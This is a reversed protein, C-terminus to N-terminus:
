SFFNFFKEFLGTKNPKKRISLVENKTEGNIIKSASFVINDTQDQNYDRLYNALLFKEASIQYNSLIKRINNVIENKLCEFKVELIVNEFLTNMPLAEQDEGNVFLKNIVMHVIKYEDNYKNFQYKLNGLLDSINQKDFNESKLNYNMSLSSSFNNKLDIIVYLKKVFDNLNKEIEILNNNFFNELESFLNKSVKNIFSYKKTYSIENEKNLCSFIVQEENIFIFFKDDLTKSM